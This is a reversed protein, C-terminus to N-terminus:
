GGDQVGEIILEGDPEVEIRTGYPRSVENLMGWLWRADAASARSLRMQRMQMPIMRLGALEGGAPALSLLYMLALDGRFAEHGGIGEYDNIFDGCGYLILRGEYVEIPRPHHSSHGHVVNVGAEVLLHAFRVQDPPM